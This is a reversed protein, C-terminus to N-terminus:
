DDSRASFSGGRVGREFNKLLADDESEFDGPEASERRPQAEAPPAARKPEAAPRKPETSASQRVGMQDELSRKTDSGVKRIEQEVARKVDTVKRLDDLDAERAADEMGTQFERALSRAKAVWRGVNRILKPLDKPGVIILALAAIVLVEWGGIDFM